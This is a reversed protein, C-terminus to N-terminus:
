KVGALDTARAGSIPMPALATKLARITAEHTLDIHLPTVSIRGAYAAELDTGPAPNSLQHRYGTWYYTQGRLDTRHEAYRTRVDRFGQRTVAIGLGDPPAKSPFNINLIVDSPWGANLLKAVLDAGFTEATLFESPNDGREVGRMQSLAISPIGLAMGEIAGAVTGSLTVDEALNGGYNVGSLVLDPQAGGILNRVALMVCDTPTGTVSFRRDDLTRVRLPETLTLARSKGSQETEPACVWLDDSLTRAIRELAALGAANIGDDNTLLIRM